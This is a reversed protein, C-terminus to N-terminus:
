GGRGLPASVSLRFAPDVWWWRPCCFLWLRSSLVGVLRGRWVLCLVSGPPCSRVASRSSAFVFRPFFRRLSPFRFLVFAWVVVARRSLRGVRVPWSSCLWWVRVRRRLRRAVLLSVLSVWVLSLSVVLSVLFVLVSFLFSM